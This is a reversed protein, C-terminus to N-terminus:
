ELWVALDPSPRARTTLSESHGRWAFPMTAVVGSSGQAHSILACPPFLRLVPGGGFRESNSASCFCKEAGDCFYTNGTENCIITKLDGLAAALAFLAAKLGAMWAASQAAGTSGLVRCGKGEPDCGQFGDIFVGDLDNDKVAEVILRM